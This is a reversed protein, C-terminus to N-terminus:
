VSSTLARLADWHRPHPVFLGRRVMSCYGSTLGTAREMARVSVGRLRPLIEQIFIERDPLPGAEREYEEAERMRTRHSASRKRQAEGGHAPDQGTARLGALIAFGRESAKSWLEERRSPLCYDCQTRDHNELVVGCTRCAAPLPPTRPGSVRPGLRVGNRGASRRNQTLPTPMPGPRSGAREHLTRAVQEAIPGVARQFRPATEALQHTLPALLRCVGQRTEHFDKARFVHGQLLDLVFSDVDPRAAEMLDLAMSDRNRQDAHLVGLGPDLGVALCAIRCEAELIAYLYNLITNAPNAALRPNGTIPSARKGFRRWHDPVRPLDARVFSVEISSLAEWYEIAAASEPVMLEQPTRAADLRPMMSEDTVSAQESAGLRQLVSAQGSLKARLLDRAIAIGFESGGALAQTRRLRPDDNGPVASALLLRGDRDIHVLAAGIDTFWRTAELSIYGAVGLIVVRKIGSTARAFTAERRDRGIGDSIVLHGRGVRVKVGYGDVVLVGHRPTLQPLPAFHDQM